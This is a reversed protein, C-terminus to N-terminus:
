DWRTTEIIPTANANSDDWVNWSDIGEANQGPAADRGLEEITPDDDWVEAATVFLINFHDPNSTSDDPFLEDDDDPSPRAKLKPHRQAVKAITQQSVYNFTGVPRNKEENNLVKPDNDEGPEPLEIWNILKLGKITNRFDTGLTLKQETTFDIYNGDDDEKEQERDPEAPREFEEHQIKWGDATLWFTQNHTVQEPTLLFNSSLRPTPLSTESNFSDCTILPFAEGKVYELYREHVLDMDKRTAYFNRKTQNLEEILPLLNVSIKAYPARALYKACTEPSWNLPTTERTELYFRHIDLIYQDGM